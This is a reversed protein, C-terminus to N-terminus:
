FHEAARVKAGDRLLRTGASIVNEGPEIGSTLIARGNEVRDLTVPRKAATGSQADFIWVQANGAEDTDVASLPVAVANNKAADGKLRLTVSTTMGPLVSLDDPRKMGFTVAYTQTVPDPETEHERYSLPVPTEPAFPFFAAADFTGPEAALHILHEPVSIDVRLETVDQVRVVNQKPQVASFPDVHRRAILADFPAEIRTYALNREARDRAVRTLRFDAQARDYAARSVNDRKLLQRYREFEKAALEQQVKAENLALEYDTPDLAAILTGKTVFEGERVPMEFIRGDVEFSLNVTSVAEVRGAFRRTMDGSASVAKEVKVPLATDTATDPEDAGAFLIFAAAIVLGAASAALLSGKAPLPWFNFRTQTM